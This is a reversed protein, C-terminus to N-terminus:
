WFIRSRCRRGQCRRRLLEQYLLLEVLDKVRNQNRDRDTPRNEPRNPRRRNQEAEVAGDATDAEGSLADEMYAKELDSFEKEGQMREQIRRCMLRLQLKDPYEDFIMSGDYDMRDCEEEVYPLIRKALDPYMSKLYEYDREDKKEDDFLFPTPYMMYYPLKKEM